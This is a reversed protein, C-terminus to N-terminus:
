MTVKVKKTEENTLKREKQFSKTQSHVVRKKKEKERENIKREVKREKKKEKKEKQVHLLM